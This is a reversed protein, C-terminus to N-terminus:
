GISVSSFICRVQRDIDVAEEPQEVDKAPAGRRPVDAVGGNQGQTDQSENM